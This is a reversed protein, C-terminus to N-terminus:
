YTYTQTINNSEDDKMQFIEKTNTIKEDNIYCSERYKTQIYNNISKDDLKINPFKKTFNIKADLPKLLIDNLFM